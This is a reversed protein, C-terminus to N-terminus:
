RSGATAAKWCARLWEQEEAGLILGPVRGGEVPHATDWGVDGGRLEGRKNRHDYVFVWQEGHANKFYGFYCSSEDNSVAPPTGCAPVHKNHMTFFPQPM